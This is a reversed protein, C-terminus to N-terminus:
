RRKKLGEAIKALILISGLLITSLYIIYGHGAAKEGTKPLAALPVDEEDLTDEVSVDADEEGIIVAEEEVIDEAKNDGSSLPTDDDTIVNTDTNTSGEQTPAYPEIIPPVSDSPTNDPLPDPIWQNIIRYSMGTPTNEEVITSGLPLVIEGDGMVMFNFVGSPMDYHGGTKQSVETEQLYYEGEELSGLSIEGNAGSVIGSKIKVFGPQQAATQLSIAESAVSETAANGNPALAQIVMEANNDPTQEASSTIDTVATDQADAPMRTTEGSQAPQTENDTVTGAVNGEPTEHSANNGNIEPEQSSGNNDVSGVANKPMLRIIVTNTLADYHVEGKFRGDFTFKVKYQRDASLNDFINEQETDSLIKEDIKKTDDDTNAETNADPSEYLQATISFQEVGILSNDVEINMMYKDTDSMKKYLDFKAGEVAKGNQDTKYVTNNKIKENVIKLQYAPLLKGSDDKMQTFKDSVGGILKASLTGQTNEVEVYYDDADAIYGSPAKVETIKYTGNLLRFIAEGKADTTIERVYGSNPIFEIVNGDADKSVAGPTVTFVAGSLKADANDTKFITLDIYSSSDSINVVKASLNGDNDKVAVVNGNGSKEYEPMFGQLPQETVVYTYDENNLDQPQIEVELDVTWNKEAKIVTANQFVKEINQKNSVPHRFIDVRVEDPIREKSKDVDKWEKTINLKTVNNKYYVKITKDSKDLTIVDTSQKESGKYTIKSFKHKRDLEKNKDINKLDVKYEADTRASVSALPQTSDENYYEVIYNLGKFSWTGTFTVSDEILELENKDWGKFEWVEGDGTVITEKDLKPAKYTTGFPATKDGPHQKLVEEPLEKNSDPVFKFDIKVPEKKELAWKGVFTKEETVQRAEAPTWGKFHWIGGKVIVDNKTPNHKNPNYDDGYKVSDSNTTLLQTVAEPLSEDPNQSEFKLNIKLDAKAIFEWHGTFTTNDDTVQAISKPDWGKFHWIGGKVIVDNFGQPEYKTGFKVDTSQPKLKDVSEPIGKGSTDSTFEFSVKVPNKPEFKWTGNFTFEETIKDEETPNWKDFKWVGGEVVVETVDPKKPKYNDAYEIYVSEPVSNKISDPFVQTTGTQPIYKFNIKIDNKQAFKWHGVIETDATIKDIKSTTQNNVKWGTFEWVGGKVDAKTNSPAPITYDKGYSTTGNQPKYGEVYAPYSKGYKDNNDNTFKFTVAPNKKFEWHGVVETDKTVNKLETVSRNGVTWGKFLWVGNNGRDIVTTQEPNPIPFNSGYLLDKKDKPMVDFVGDPLDQMDATDSEATFTIKVDAHKCEWIGTIHSDNEVEDIKAPKWRIFKWTDGNVKVETKAPPNPIYNKTGYPIQEDGPTLQVVEQPLNETGASEFTFTVTAIKNEKVGVLNLPGTVKKSFDYPTKSSDEKIYWYSIENVQPDKVKDTAVVKQTEAISQNNEDVFNVNYQTQYKYGEDFYETFKLKREGKAKQVTILVTKYNPPAQMLFAFDYATNRDFNEYKYISIFDAYKIWFNQMSQGALYDPKDTFPIESNSDPKTYVPKGQSDVVPHGQSDLVRTLKYIHLNNFYDDLYVGTYVQYGLTLSKKFNNYDVNYFNLRPTKKGTEYQGPASNEGGYIAVLTMSSNVPQGFDYVTQSSDGKVYWKTVKYKMEAPKPVSNGKQVQVTDRLKTGKENVFDVNVMGNRALSHVYGGEKFRATEAKTVVSGSINGIVLAFMLM